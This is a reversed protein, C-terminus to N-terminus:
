RTTRNEGMQKLTSINYMEVKIIDHKRIVIYFNVFVAFRVTGSDLQAGKEAIQVKM